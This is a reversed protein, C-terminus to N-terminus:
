SDEFTEYAHYGGTCLGRYCMQCGCCDAPHTYDAIAITDFFM